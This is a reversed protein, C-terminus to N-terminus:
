HVFLIVFSVFLVPAVIRLPLFALPLLFLFPISTMFTGITVVLIKPLFFNYASGVSSFEKSWNFLIICILWVYRFFVSLDRWTMRVSEQIHIFKVRKFMLELLVVDANVSRESVRPVILLM